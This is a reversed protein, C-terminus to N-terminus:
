SVCYKIFAKPIGPDWEPGEPVHFGRHIQFRAVTIAGQHANTKGLDHIGLIGVESRTSTERLDHIGLFEPESRTGTERLDHIGLFKAESRTNTEGLDHIGLFKAESM